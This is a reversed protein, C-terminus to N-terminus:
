SVQETYVQTPEEDEPNSYVKTIVKYAKRNELFKRLCKALELNETIIMCVIKQNM